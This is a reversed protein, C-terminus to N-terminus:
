YKEITWDRVDYEKGEGEYGLLGEHQGQRWVRMVAKGNKNVAARFMGGCNFDEVIESTAATMEGTDEKFEVTCEIGIVGAEGEGTKKWRNGASKVLEGGPGVMETIGAQLSTNPRYRAIASATRVASTRLFSDGNGTGSMATARRVKIKEKGLGSEDWDGTSLPYYLEGGFSPLCDAVVGKLWGEVLLKPATSKSQRLSEEWEEAWFGAGLTPTDGIRGGLKNTMGGTSTAVACIGDEDLAVAGCTGQSVYLDKDWTAMGKGDGGGDKERKLGAIHEDWRNQVFFYSQDGEPVLLHSLGWFEALAEATAGHLQSHGQAGSAPAKSLEGNAANDGSPATSISSDAMPGRHEGNGGELDKEGRLLMERALLIPNKVRRLGMLGVGRKKKGSSVM